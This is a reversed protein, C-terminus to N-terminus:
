QIEAEIEWVGNVMQKSKVVLNTGPSFMIEAEKKNTEPNLRDMYIGRAGEPSSIRVHVGKQYKEQVYGGPVMTTSLFGQWPITKGQEANEWDATKAYHHLELAPLKPAKKFAELMHGHWREERDTFPEQNWLKRNEVATSGQAQVLAGREELNFLRKEPPINDDAWDVAEQFDAFKLPEATPRPDLRVKPAKGGLWEWVTQGEVVDESVAWQRFADWVEPDYREQLDEVGLRLEGPNWQFAKDAGLKESPPTVDHTQGGRQLQGDRLRKLAPGEVVLKDDPARDEDGERMEDVLDENMGRVLCRCGWDWPPFHKEWFPDDKPLTIGDLAKHSPRVREDEMTLYQWHTTDDDAMGTAYTGAQYAQFGHMRILMEARRESGGEFKADDMIKVIDGKVDDWLAGEPLTAIEDRVRQIVEIGELGTVTFARGRLEPLLKDFAKRAFVPKGRILAAAEANPEITFGVTAM